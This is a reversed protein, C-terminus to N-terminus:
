RGPIVKVAVGNKDLEVKRIVDIHLLVNDSERVLKRTGFVKARKVPHNGMLDKGVFKGTDTDEIVWGHKKM